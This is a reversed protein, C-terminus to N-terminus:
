IAPLVAPPSPLVCHIGSFISPSNLVTVPVPPMDSKDTIKKQEDNNKLWESVIVEDINLQSDAVAYVTEEKEIGSAAFVPCATGMVLVAAVGASLIRMGRSKLM